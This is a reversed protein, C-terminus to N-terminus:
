DIRETGGTIGTTHINIEKGTRDRFLNPISNVFDESKSEELINITCGGFGAGMMRSGLVGDTGAALEVLIDLDKSSVEYEDRLGAHSEFMRKGFSVMDNRKLDECSLIVRENEELVYRCRKFVLPDFDGQYELLFEMSVDRLSKISGDYRRLLAVGSECQSRRINYESTALDHRTPTECLIIRLDDRQFPFYHYELSRCDIKLVTKDKGFINIFQDMIGCQVGAYEHEAKQAMKVMALKDVGLSFLENLAFIFGGELAASSSLGAGIPVDGGFVVNVGGPSLGAKQLLDIVGLFYNPWQKSSKQLYKIDVEHEDNLDASVLHFRHDSGPAIAFFITKDIAAPLVFGENYDTHEGILNIRGPSRIIINKSDAGFKERFIRKIRDKHFDSL